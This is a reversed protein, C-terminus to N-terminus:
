AAPSRADLETARHNRLVMAGGIGALVSSTLTAIKSIDLLSGDGFALGAVFLSVTFGIGCLWGAGLIQNWTVGDPPAAIGTKAGLWASGAIGLPKGFLLGLGVGLAIPHTAAQFVDGPFRVGANALAFLPMIFFNVWPQLRHEIRHLPSQVMECQLELGQVAEHEEASHVAASEMRGLLARSSELFKPRDILTRAPITFAMLIGAITAHVGSKLMAMWVFLSIVAYAVPHGVGARNALCSIALGAFAVGLNLFSITDTYFFSIVLVCLIDDVIALAAVFVKLTAPVHDGVLALVGLAFAIDTAMPIGWGHAAGSTRNMLLYILAPLVSGGAAAILPFAARKLTSLEGILIERKIELGVLFFFVAMLGDNIWFHRTESICNRGFGITLSKHWFHVYSEEWPSNACVLALGTCVLLLVGGAAEMRAFRRFPGTLLDIPAVTAAPNSEGTALASGEM